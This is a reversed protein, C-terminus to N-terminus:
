FGEPITVVFYESGPGLRLVAIVDSYSSGTTLEYVGATLSSDAGSLRARLRFMNANGIVGAKALQEGIQATSSGEPIEIQVSRGPDVGSQQGLFLAWFGVGTCLLLAVLVVTTFQLIRKM